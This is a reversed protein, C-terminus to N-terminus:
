PLTHSHHHFDFGPRSPSRPDLFFALFNSHSRESRVIGLIKWFNLRRVRSELSRLEPSSILNEL